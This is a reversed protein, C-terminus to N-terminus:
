PAPSEGQGAGPKTEVAAQPATKMEVDANQRLQQIYGQIRQNQALARLQPKVQEFSPPSSDRVDELEIVHWGFQTKVPQKTYQGKELGAVADSFPKVMQKPSFWGLEGGNKGTPGTSHKKALEAFDGGKDLEAIIERAKAEDEVLIHRAKFEKGGSGIKEDYLKKLDEDSVPSSQLQQQLAAGAIVARKQQEIQAAIEPKKDLGKRVGDQRVLELNVLEQLAAQEDMKGHQRQARQQMYSDLMNRTVPSGNVTALVESTDAAATDAQTQAQPQTKQNNLPIQDCAALTVGLAVLLPIRTFKM